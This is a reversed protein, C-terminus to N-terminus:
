KLNKMLETAKGQYIHSPDTAIKNLLTKFEANKQGSTLQILIVRWEAQQVANMDNSSNIITKLSSIASNYDSKKFYCHSLLLLKQNNLEADNISELVKIAENYNQNEIFRMAEDLPSTGGGGKTAFSPEDYYKKFLEADSPSSFFLWNAVFAVVLLVSAAVVLPYIRRSLPIVKAEKEETSATSLISTKEKKWEAMESRLNDREALQWARHQMKQIAVATALEENEAIEKEFTAKDEPSLYGMLYDDIKDLIDDKM